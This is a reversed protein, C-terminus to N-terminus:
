HLKVSGKFLRGKNVCWVGCMHACASVCVCVGCVCVHLVHIYLVHAYLVNTCKVFHQLM